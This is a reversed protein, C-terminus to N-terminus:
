LLLDSIIKYYFCSCKSNRGINSMNILSVTKKNEM